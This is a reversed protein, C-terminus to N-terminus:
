SCPNRGQAAQGCANIRVSFSTQNRDPKVQIAYGLKYFRDINDKKQGIMRSVDKPSVYLTYNGKPKGILLRYVQQFLLEAECLERLAPHYAGGVAKQELELSAHLGLRIVPIQKQNFYSLLEACLPVSATVNPPRYIGQLMYQHLLTGEIVVTPYIRVSDPQLAALEAATQISGTPTDQFLGTMMQLGLSFGHKKIQKAAERIDQATHGRQNARLVADDMSQAGLEISTVGYKQLVDLVDADIADPRTSVRIGKFGRAGIYPKATELLELMYAPELATFSGGFFAIETTNPDPIQRTACELTKKISGPLPRSQQGSIIHQDCFSCRHPCGIHPIFFPINRHKM